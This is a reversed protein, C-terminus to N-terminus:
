KVDFRGLKGGQLRVLRFIVRHACCTQIQKQELFDVLRTQFVETM